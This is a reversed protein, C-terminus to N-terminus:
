GQYSITLGGVDANDCHLFAQVALLCFSGMSATMSVRAAGIVGLKFRKLVFGGTIIGLAVAPLNLIGPHVFSHILISSISYFSFTRSFKM